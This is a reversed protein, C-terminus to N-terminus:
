TSPSSSPTGVSCKDFTFLGLILLQVATFIIAILVASLILGYMTRRDGSCEYKDDIFQCDKAFGLSGSYKIGSLFELVDEDNVHYWPSAAGAIMVVLTLAGVMLAVFFVKNVAM